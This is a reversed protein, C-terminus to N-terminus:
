MRHTLGYVLITLYLLFAIVAVTAILTFAIRGGKLSNRRQEASPHTAQIPDNEPKEMLAESRDLGAAEFSIITGFVTLLAVSMVAEICIVLVPTDSKQNMRKERTGLVM